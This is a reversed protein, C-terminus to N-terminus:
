ERVKERRDSEEVTLQQQREAGDLRTQMARLREAMDACQREKGALSAKLASLLGELDAKESM